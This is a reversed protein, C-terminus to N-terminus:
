INSETDNNKKSQSNKQPASSKFKGMRGIFLGTRGGEHPPDSLTPRNLRLVLPGEYISSKIVSYTFRLSDTRSIRFAPNDNHKM